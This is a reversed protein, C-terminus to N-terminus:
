QRLVMLNGDRLLGGAGFYSSLAHRTSQLAKKGLGRAQKENRETQVQDRIQKALPKADSSQLSSALSKSAWQMMRGLRRRRGFPAYWRHIGPAQSLAQLSAVWVAGGM